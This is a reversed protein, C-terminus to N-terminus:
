HQTNRIEREGQGTPSGSLFAHARRWLELGNTRLALAPGLLQLLSCSLEGLAITFSTM